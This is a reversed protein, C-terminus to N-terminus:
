LKWKVHSIFTKTALRILLFINYKSTFIFSIFLFGIHLKLIVINEWKYLIHSVSKMVSQLMTRDLTIWELSKKFRKGKLLFVVICKATPKTGSAKSTSMRQYIYIYIYIYIYLIRNTYTQLIFISVVPYNM